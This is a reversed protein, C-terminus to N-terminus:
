EMKNFADDILRQLYEASSVKDDNALKKLRNMHRRTLFYEQASEADKKDRFKKQSWAGRMRNLIDTKYLSKQYPSGAIHTDIDLVDLSACIHAYYCSLHSAIFLPNEILQRQNHLYDHAWLIQKENNEDLWELDRPKTRISSYLEKAENMFARKRDIQYDIEQDYDELYIHTLDFSTILNSQFDSFHNGWFFNFNHKHRHKYCYHDFWLAARLDNQVWNVSEDPLVNAKSTQILWNRADEDLDFDNCVINLYELDNPLHVIRGINQLQNLALNVQRQTLNLSRIKKHALSEKNKSVLNVTM